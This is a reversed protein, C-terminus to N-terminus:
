TPPIETTSHLRIQLRHTYAHLRTSTLSAGRPRVAKSEKVDVRGCTWVDVRGCTWVNVRGCTWVDARGCTVGASLAGM